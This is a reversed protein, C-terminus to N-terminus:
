KAAAPVHHERVLRRLPCFGDRNCAVYMAGAILTLVAAGVGVALHIEQALIVSSMALVFWGFAKRLAEPNVKATVRAGILAGVVAAATVALAVTWDIHVSSLYGGLGAFSKMAIVVLSTGVAVPMPLGGLLALAPVVLFGGGAGVLGTVLGVLLGEALIKPVPM